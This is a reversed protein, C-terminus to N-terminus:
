NAMDKPPLDLSSSLAALGEAAGPVDAAVAQRYFHAAEEDRGGAELLSALSFAATPDDAAAQRFFPEAEDPRGAECLVAGLLHTAHPEDSAVAQRAVAEAEDFRGSEGLLLALGLAARTDGEDLARRYLREAEDTRETGVLGALNVLARADGAEVAQRYYVVAEESREQIDLLYGLAFAADPHGAELAQRYLAEAEEERGSETLLSALGLAAETVGANLARRYVPEAESERGLYAMLQALDTAVSFDGGDLAQQYLREAEDHRGLQTLLRALNAVASLDGADAAMRYFPEAEDPRGSVMLLYGLNHGAYADGAAVAQRYFPEAEDLRGARALLDGLEHAGVADGAHAAQRYYREAEETRGSQVLMSALDTASYILGAEAGQRYFNEAEDTRGARDLLVALNHAARSHGADAAQRYFREAEDTQGAESLLVGLGFAAEANGAEAGQRFADLAETLRGAEAMLHGLDNLAPAYGAHAAQRFLREAEETQGDDVLLAGLVNAAAADGAEAARRYVPKAEDNRGAGILLAGLGLAAAADGADAALGYFHEAEALRGSRQLLYGLQRAHSLSGRAVEMRYFREATEGQEDLAEMLAQDVEDLRGLQGGYSIAANLNGTKLARRFLEEVEERRGSQVLLHALVFSAKTDGSEALPRFAIEATSQSAFSANFGITYREADDAAHALSVEWARQAVPTTCRDALYDFVTWSTDTAPLLLSTVGYRIRSAWELAADLPEPRLLAGGAATLYHDHIEALLDRSFPGALGTRSLDIAGAVLAAGRPHAGAQWARQWEDWLDPGAALYEAVGYPGHHAVADTLRDDGSARASALEGETWIRNLAIPETLTLVRAGVNAAWLAAQDRRGAASDRAQPGYLEYQRSRMTAIVPTRLRVLEALLPPELGGPELYLELDDLWLVCRIGNRAAVELTAPLDSGPPPALIRYHPLTVRVAEFAARTKGATSDGVVLVLGGDRAARELRERLVGDIDRPVYPPVANGDAGPRARHAGAELAGWAEAIPWREPDALYPPLQAGSQITVPGNVDRAQIVPGYHIGGSVTNHTRGAGPETM